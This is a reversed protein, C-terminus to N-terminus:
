GISIDSGQGGCSSPRQMFFAAAHLLHSSQKVNGKGKGNLIQNCLPSSSGHLYSSSIFNHLGMSNDM